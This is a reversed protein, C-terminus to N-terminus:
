GSSAQRRGAAVDVRSLLAGGVLFFGGVALVATRSSGTLTVLLAFLAPGLIGAFKEVVAFFAFFESSRQRPIMSAFLSRSLAQTGGMVM